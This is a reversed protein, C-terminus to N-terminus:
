AVKNRGGPEGVGEGTVVVGNGPGHLCSLPLEDPELQGPAGQTDNPQPGDADLHSIGGQAQPQLDNSIVRGNAHLVGPVQGSVDLAGVGNLVHEALGIDEGHM